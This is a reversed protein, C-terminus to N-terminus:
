SGNVGPTSRASCKRSSSAFGPCWNVRETKNHFWMAGALGVIVLAIGTYMWGYLYFVSATYAGIAALITVVIAAVERHAVQTQSMNQHYRQPRTTAIRPTVSQQGWNAPGRELNLPKPYEGKFGDRNTRTNGM